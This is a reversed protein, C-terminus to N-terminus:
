WCAAPTKTTSLGSVTITLTACNVGAEDDLAQDASAATATLVYATSTNGTISLNYYGEPSTTVGGWANALTGYSTNKMRYQEEASVISMLTSTGDYRRSKRIQDKFAPMIFITLIGIIVLVIVLEVFTFGLSKKNL